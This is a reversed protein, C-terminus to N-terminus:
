AEILRKYAEPNEQKFKLQADTDLKQFDEMTMDGGHSLDKRYSNKGPIAELVAKANDYNDTAMSLFAERKDATIKGEKIANDVLTAALTAKAEKEAKEFGEVKVKLGDREQLLAQNQKGLALVAKDIDTQTLEQEMDTFGLVTRAGMGLVIIQKMKTDQNSNNEPDETDDPSAISLCLNNIEEESLEKDDCYLKLANANSPIAVISAEVLECKVLVLEEGVLRLDERQFSIGISAGKIFGRKVKGAVEESKPDESDFNPDALLLDAKKDVEINQWNGLVHHNSNIHSDLMIPNAKFRALSIGATKVFFGYSNKQNGDNLVFADKRNKKFIAM